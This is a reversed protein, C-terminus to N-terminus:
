TLTNTPTSSPTSTPTSTTTGIPASTTSHNSTDITIRANYLYGSGIICQAGPTYTAVSGNSHQITWNYKPSYLVVQPADFTLSGDYPLRKVEIRDYVTGGNGEVILLTDGNSFSGGNAAVIHLPPMTTYMEPTSSPTSSPTSTPTPTPNSNNSGNYDGFLEDTEDWNIDNENDTDIAAKALANIKTNLTKSLDSSTDSIADTILRIIKNRLTEVNLVESM